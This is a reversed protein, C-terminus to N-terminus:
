GSRVVVANAIRDHLGQHLPPRFVGRYVVWGSLLLQVLPGPLSGTCGALPDLDNERYVAMVAQNLAAPDDRHEVRLEEIRPQLDALAKMRERTGPWDPVTGALVFPLAGVAWRLSARKLGLRNGSAADVVRIGALRHGLTRGQRALMATAMAGDLVILGLATHTPLKNPDNPDRRRRLFM